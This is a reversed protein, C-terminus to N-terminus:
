NSNFAILPQVIPLAVPLNNGLAVYDYPAAANISVSTQDPTNPDQLYNLKIELGSNLGQTGFGITKGWFEFVCNVPVLQNSYLPFAHINVLAGGISMLQSGWIFYRYVTTGVRWKITVFKGSSSLAMTEIIDNLIYFPAPAVVNYQFLMQGNYKINAAQLTFAPLFLSTRIKEIPRSPILHYFKDFPVPATQAEALTAQRAPVLNLRKPVIDNFNGM